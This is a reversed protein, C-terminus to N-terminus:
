EARRWIEIDGAQKALRYGDLAGAMGPRKLVWERTARDEAVIIDPRGARIDEALAALDASRRAELRQRREPGATELLRGVAATVFLANQRGVWEGALRRTLPHGFDLQSAITAIRPRPPAVAAVAAMLGEHEERDTLQEVIGFYAPAALLAPVFLFKTLAARVGTAARDRLAFFIWAFLLLVMAPYAHNMWGKGQLLFAAFFGLSAALAVLSARGLAAGRAAVLFGALLALYALALSHALFHGLDDRAPGYVELALPLAEDVYAPFAILTAGTAVVAALAAAVLEARLLARASRERWALALAPLAIALLFHPKMAVALGGCLGAVVRLPLPASAREEALAALLPLLALLAIHEREAFVIEPAVLLLFIAANLLQMWERRGRAAGHRLLLFSFGISGAAALFVLAAVLAEAPLHLARALLVAPMLSLFAAPPNPDSTEVYAIRGDLVKEAFTLFWSVDCDIHGILQQAVAVVALGAGLPPSSLLLELGDSEVRARASKELVTM